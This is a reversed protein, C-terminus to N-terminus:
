APKAAEDVLALLQKGDLIDPAKSSFFDFSDTADIEAVEALSVTETYGGQPMQERTCGLKFGLKDFWLIKICGEVDLAHQGDAYSQSRLLTWGRITHRGLRKPDNYIGIKLAQIETNILLYVTGPM